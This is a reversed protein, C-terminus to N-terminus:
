SSSAPWPSPPTLPIDPPGRNPGKPRRLEYLCNRNFATASHTYLKCPSIAVARGEEDRVERRLAKCSLSAATRLTAHTAQDRTFSQSGLLRHTRRGLLLAASTSTSCCIVLLTSASKGYRVSGGAEEEVVEGSADEELSLLSLSLPLSLSPPLCLLAASVAEESLLALVAFTGTDRELAIQTTPTSTSKAKRTVALRASDFSDFSRTQAAAAAGSAPPGPLRPEFRARTYSCSASTSHTFAKAAVSFTCMWSVVEEAVEVLLSMAVEEKRDGATATWAAGAGGRSLKGSKEKSHAASVEAAERTSEDNSSWAALAPLLLLLLLLVAINGDRARFHGM